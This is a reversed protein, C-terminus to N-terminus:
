TRKKAATLPLFRQKSFRLVLYGVFNYGVTLCSLGVFAEWLGNDAFGLRRPVLCIPRHLEPPAPQHITIRRACSAQGPDPGRDRHLGAGFRDHLELGHSGQLCRAPYHRCRHCLAGAPM